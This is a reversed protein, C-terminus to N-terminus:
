HHSFLAMWDEDHERFERKFADDFEEYTDVLSGSWEGSDYIYSKMKQTAEDLKEVDAGIFRQIEGGSVLFLFEPEYKAAYVSKLRPHKEVDIKFCKLDRHNLTFKRFADEMEECQPNWGGYFYLMALRPKKEGLYKRLEVPGEVEQALSNPVDVFNRAALPSFFGSRALNTFRKSFSQM